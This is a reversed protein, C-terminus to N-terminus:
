RFLADYRGTALAADFRRALDPVVVSDAAAGGPRDATVTVYHDSLLAIRLVRGGLRVPYEYAGEAAPLREAGLQTILFAVLADRLPAGAPELRYVRAGDGQVSLEGRYPLPVVGPRPGLRDVGGADRTWAFYHALWAPDLSELTSYRMRPRDIPLVYASDAVVDTVVLAPMTDSNAAYAFRAFSRGDPSLALPPVSPVESVDAPRAAFRRVALRRVDIVARGLLLVDAGSLSRRDFRGRPEDGGVAARFRASDSTLARADLPSGCASVYEVRVRDGADALLYCAGGGDAASARVLLAPAPGPLAAVADARDYRGVTSDEDSRRGEVVFPRGRWGIAFRATANVTSRGNVTADHFGGAITSVTFPGFAETRVAESRRLVRYRYTFGGAPAPAGPRADPLWGTWRTDREAPRGQMPLLFGPRTASDLEVELVRGGRNTFVEVAGPVVWRGDVLRADEKWLPGRVSARQVHTFRTVSGLTLAGEATDTAPSTTRSAPWRVEVALMLPEGGLEPPVDAMARAAGAAAGSLLLVGTAATGLARWFGAGRRALVRSVVLGLALGAVFGLVIFAVVFYGSGGEFSSVHYWDVYLGAVIGSAAAGALATLLAVGLSKPWSM